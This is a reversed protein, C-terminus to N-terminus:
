PKSSKGEKFRRMQEDQLRYFEQMKEDMERMKEAMNSKMAEIISKAKYPM